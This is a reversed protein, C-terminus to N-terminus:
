NDIAEMEFGSPKSIDGRWAVRYAQSIGNQLNDAHLLLIITYKGVSLHHLQELQPPVPERGDIDRVFLSLENGNSTFLTLYESSNIDHCEWSPVGLYWGIRGTIDVPPGFDRSDTSVVEKVYVCSNRLTRNTKIKLRVVWDNSKPRNKPPVIFEDSKDFIFEVAPQSDRQSVWQQAYIITSFGIGFIVWVWRRQTEKGGATAVGFFIGMLVVGVSPVVIALTNVLTLM